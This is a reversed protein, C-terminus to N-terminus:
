EVKQLMDGQQPNVNNHPPTKSRLTICVFSAVVVPFRISVVKHGGTLWLSPVFASTKLLISFM